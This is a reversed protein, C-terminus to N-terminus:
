SLVRLAILTLDDKLLREERFTDFDTLIAELVQVTSASSNTTLLQQVVAILRDDGYTNGSRNQAEPIGDTLLLILDGPELQAQLSEYEGDDFFGLPYGEGLLKESSKDKSRFLLAPPHGARAYDLKKTSPDFLLSMYTIFNGEPLQPALLQNMRKLLPAPMVTESAMMALKTMSCIFAASLGHGTVDAVQFGLQGEPTQHVFYWDGGVEELPEYLVAIEFGPGKPLQKPLLNQQIKRAEDLEKKVKQTYDRLSANVESLTAKVDESGRIKRMRLKTAIRGAVKGLSFDEPLFEFDTLALKTLFTKTAPRASHVLFPIDRTEPLSSLYECIGEIELGVADEMFVADIIVGAIGDSLTTTQPDYGIIEYGLKDFLARFKKNESFSIHLIRDM